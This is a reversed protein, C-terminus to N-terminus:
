STELVCTPVEGGPPLYMTLPFSRIHRKGNNGEQYGSQRGVSVFKVLVKYRTKRGRGGIKSSLKRIVCLRVYLHAAKCGLM